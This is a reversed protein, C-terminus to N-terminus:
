RGTGHRNLKILNTRQFTATGWISKVFRIMRTSPITLRKVIQLSIIKKYTQPLQKHVAPMRTLGAPLEISFFPFKLTFTIDPLPMRVKELLPAKLKKINIEQSVVNIDGWAILKLKDTKDTVPFYTSTLGTKDGIDPDIFIKKANATSWALTADTGIIAGGEVLSFGCIRAPKLELRRTCTAGRLIGKLTYYVIDNCAPIAHGRMTAPLSKNGPELFVEDFFESRWNLYFCPDDPNGNDSVFFDTIKASYLKISETVVQNFDGIATLTIQLDDSSNHIYVVSDKGIVDGINHDILITKANEVVWSLNIAIGETIILEDATFDIIAPKRIKFEIVPSDVSRFGNYARITVKVAKSLQLEMSPKWSRENATNTGKLLLRREVDLIEWRTANHLQCTLATPAGETIFYPAEMKPLDIMPEALTILIQQKESKTFWASSKTELEFTKETDAIVTLSGEEEVIRNDFFVKEAKEVKWSFTIEDGALIETASATFYEIAPKEPM